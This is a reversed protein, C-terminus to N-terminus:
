VTVVTGTMAYWAGSYYYAPCNYSDTVFVLTGNEVTGQDILDSLEGTTYNKLVISCDVLTARRIENEGFDNTSSLDVLNLQLKTIEDSGTKLASQISAFNSRFGQSDNDVGPDPFNVDILGSYNTITSAM